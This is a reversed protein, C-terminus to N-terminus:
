PRAGSLLDNVIAALRDVAVAFGHNAAVYQSAAAGLAARRASNAILVDLSRAFAVTDREAVLLGGVGDRVVDPVGATRLAVVPVGAAQAELYVMGFAEGLGPWVFVDAAALEGAVRDGDLVGVFNVREEGFAAFAARVDAEARGGGVVTLHWEPAQVQALAEALFRYSELKDGPRMMAVAVLRVPGGSQAHRVKPIVDGRPPLFPPFRLAVEEPIGAKLVGARDRETFCLIADAARMAKVAEAQWEAWADRDRKGAYTAEAIAYPIGLASAVHPGIWDPAKYYVHYTFWVDPRWDDAFAASLREAEARSDQLTRELLANDPTRTWTKSESVLRTDHGAADLASMLLRAITRDGSPVDSLPSKMPAYFAIRAV